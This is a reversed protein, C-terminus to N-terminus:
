SLAACVDMLVHGGNLSLSTITGDAAVSETLPGATVSLPPLGFQQALDPPLFVGTHGTQRVAISGDPYTTVKGPGSVPETIAKGTSLNTYRIKFSGTFLVLVAGDAAKLVKVYENNAPFTVGVDFACSGQVTFPEAQNLEWKPGRGALAPSAAVVGAFMGLIAGLAVIVGFRRM